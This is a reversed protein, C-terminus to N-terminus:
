GLEAARRASLIVRKCEALARQSGNLARECVKVQAYDGAIAAEDRLTTINATTITTNMTM